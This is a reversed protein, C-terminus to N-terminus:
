RPSKFRWKVITWLIRLGDNWRIKKGEGYSRPRYRIPAEVVRGGRRILKCVLENDYEFGDAEIPINTIVSRRFAKYGGEYDTGSLGYLLNTLFVITINGVFHSFFPDRKPGIFFRPREYLFRSGLVADAEGREIPDVLVPYDAPDYELDADQILVIEGRAAAVGTKVAAGKGKNEPHRITRIGDIAALRAPTADRSGDDVVIIDLEFGPPASAKVRGVVEAITGQENYCPIVVSLTSM